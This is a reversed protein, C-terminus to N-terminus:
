ACTRSNTTLKVFIGSLSLFLSLLLPPFNHFDHKKSSRHHSNLHIYFLSKEEEEM